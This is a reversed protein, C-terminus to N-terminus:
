APYRLVPVAVDPDELELLGPSVRVGLVDEVVPVV